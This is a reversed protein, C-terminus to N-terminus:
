GFRRWNASSNLLKLSSAAGTAAAPEDASSGGTPLTTSMAPEPERIRMSPAISAERCDCESGATAMDPWTPLWTLIATPLLQSIALTRVSQSPASPSTTAM